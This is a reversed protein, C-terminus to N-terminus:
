KRTSSLLLVVKVGSPIYTNQNGMIFVGM